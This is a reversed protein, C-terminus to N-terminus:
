FHIFVLAYHPKSDVPLPHSPEALRTLKDNNADQFIHESPNRGLAMVKNRNLRFFATPM